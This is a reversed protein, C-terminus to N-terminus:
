SPCPLNQLVQTMAAGLDASTAAEFYLTTANVVSAIRQLLTRSNTTPELGITLISTGAMKAFDALLVPDPGMNVQGNSIVLMTRAAGNRSYQILHTQALAIGDGLDTGGGAVLTDIANKAAQYDFTLPQQLAANSAFWVIAVRDRTPDLQNIFTKAAAKMDALKTSQAMSASTDLVLVVERPVACVVPGPVPSTPTPTVTRTPTPSVGPGPTAQPPLVPGCGPCTIASPPYYLAPDVPFAEYAKTLDGVFGVPGTGREIVVAGLMAGGQQDSCEADIVASGNFGSFLLGLDSMRIYDVQKENLTQCYSVIFGNQDYIDIRFNTSGPNMNLNQVAIESNWVIGNITKDKTLLPIALTQGGQTYANYSIAQGTTQNILNVLSVINPADVPPDGPSWWDQSEIRVAGVYNGPSSGIAPLFFTQSGRPCVWDVISTIIDGSNDLFTVKVKANFTSSLNQVQVSTNWGQEQRFILPGYNILSGNTFGAGVSDAPVGRYSMLERNACKIDVVIGLPQSARIWASGQKGVPLSPVGVRITEGPALAPVDSIIARLCNDQERYWIEVSTCEVGSNQIILNTTCDQYQNYNLPAYYMFGGFQPDYVGEMTDSIGTYAAAGLYEGTPSFLRRDVAAVMPAGSGYRGLYWNEEWTFWGAAGTTSAQNAEQCALDARAADVSYIIGGIATTPLQPSRWQWASGPYLLGSCEVKFPGPSQPLCFGSYDAWLFLIAKSPTGGVNQVQIWTESGGDNNIAPIQIRRGPGPQNFPSTPTATPTPTRTRTATPTSTATPTQTPTPTFTATTTEPLLGTRTPTPTITRTPTRTSTAPGTPTSTPTEFGTTDGFNIRATCCIAFDTPQISVVDPTTSRTFGPPNTETLQYYQSSDLAYFYFAGNSSTTTQRIIVGAMTRLTVIAGGLYPESGDRFGNENWDWFVFGAVKGNNGICGNLGTGTCPTPSPEPNSPVPTATSTPQVPPPLENSTAGAVAKGANVRGAGFYQDWGPNGLDDATSTILQSVQDPTLDPRVSWILGALGAVQAAAGPTMGGSWLIYGGGRATSILYYGPASVKVMPGSGTWSPHADNFDTSAVGLVHEFSAPYPSYAGAIVLAGKSYAYNIADRVAFSVSEASRGIFIIKVGHDAAYTIASAFNSWYGSNSGDVVKLPMIKVNWAVGVVGLGNNGQAAALGAQFTGISSSSDDSPDNDNNQFDYGPIIQGALDLHTADVGTGLMAIVVDKSGTTVDWASEVGIDAGPKSPTWQGNGVYAQGVNRLHWQYGFYPDNPVQSLKIGLDGRPDFLSVPKDAPEEAGNVIYNPEAYEVRSDSQLAKIVDWELGPKTSLRYINLVQLEEKVEYGQNNLWAVGTEPPVESRLKVLVEGPAYDNGAASILASSNAPVPAQDFALGLSLTLLMVLAAFFVPWSKRLM